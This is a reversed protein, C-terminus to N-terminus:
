LETKPREPSPTARRRRARRGRPESGRARPRVPGVRAPRLARASRRRVPRRFGRRALAALRPSDGFVRAGPGIRLVSPSVAIRDPLRCRGDSGSAVGATRDPPPVSSRTLFGPAPSGVTPRRYRRGVRRRPLAAQLRRLLVRRRHREARRVRRSVLLPERLPRWVRCLTEAERTVPDLGAAVSRGDARVGRRRAPRPTLCENRRCVATSRRM